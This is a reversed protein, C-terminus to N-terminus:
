HIGRCSSLIKETSIEVDQYREENGVARDPQVNFLQEIDEEESLIDGEPNTLSITASDQPNSLTVTASDAVEVTHLYDHGPDVYAGTVQDSGHVEIDAGLGGEEEESDPDDDVLLHLHKCTQHRAFAECTCTYRHHCYGNECHKCFCLCDEKSVCVSRPNPSLTYSYSSDPVTVTYDDGCKEVKYGDEPKIKHSKYVKDQFFSPPINRLNETVLMDDYEKRSDRKRLYWCVDALASRRPLESKVWRHYNEAM